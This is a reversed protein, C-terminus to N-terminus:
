LIDKGMVEAAPVNFNFSKINGASATYYQGCGAPPAFESDCAIMSVKVNWKREAADGTGKYTITVDGANQVNVYFHQGTGVGCLTSPSIEATYIPLTSKFSFSSSLKSEINM